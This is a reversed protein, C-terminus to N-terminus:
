SADLFSHQWQKFHCILPVSILRLHSDFIDLCLLYGTPESIAKDPSFFSHMLIYQLQLILFLFVATFKLVSYPVRLLFSLICICVEECCSKTLDTLELLTLSILRQHFNAAQICQLQQHINLGHISARRSAWTYSSYIGGKQPKSSYM